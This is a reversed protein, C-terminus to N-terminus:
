TFAEHAYQPCHCFTRSFVQMKYNNASILLLSLILVKTLFVAKGISYMKYSYLFIYSRIITCCIYKYM